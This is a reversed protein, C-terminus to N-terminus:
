AAVRGQQFADRHVERAPVCLDTRACADLLGPPRRRAASAAAAAAARSRAHAGRGLHVSCVHRFQVHCGGASNSARTRPPSVTPVSAPVPSALVRGRRAKEIVLKSRFAAVTTAKISMAQASAGGAPAPPLGPVGPMGPPSPPPHPPHPPPPWRQFPPPPPHPPPLPPPPPGCSAPPSSRPIFAILLTALLIKYLSMAMKLLAVALAIYDSRAVHGKKKEEAQAHPRPFAVRGSTMLPRRPARDQHRRCTITRRRLRVGADDSLPKVGGLAAKAPPPGSRARIM